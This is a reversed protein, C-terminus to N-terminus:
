ILLHRVIKVGLDLISQTADVLAIRAAPAGDDPQEGAGAMGDADVVDSFLKGVEGSAGGIPVEEVELRGSDDPADSGVVFERPELQGLIEGFVMVMEQTRTAPLHAVNWRRLSEFAGDGPLEIAEGFGLSELGVAVADIDEADARGAM